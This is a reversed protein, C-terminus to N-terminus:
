RVSIDSFVGLVRGTVPAPLPKITRGGGRAVGEPDEDAMPALKLLAM